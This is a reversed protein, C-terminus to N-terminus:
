FGMAGDMVYIRTLICYSIIKVDQSVCPISKVTDALFWYVSEAPIQESMWLQDHLSYSAQNHYM